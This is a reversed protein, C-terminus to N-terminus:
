VGIERQSIKAKRAATLGHERSIAPPGHAIRV